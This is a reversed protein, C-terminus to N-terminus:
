FGHGHLKQLYNLETQLKLHGSRLCGKFKCLHHLHGRGTNGVVMWEQVIMLDIRGMGQTDYEVM